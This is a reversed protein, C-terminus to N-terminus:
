FFFRISKTTMLDAPLGNTHIGTQRDTQVTTRSLFAKSVQSKTCLDLKATKPDLPLIATQATRRKNRKDSLRPAGPLIEIRELARRACKPFGKM